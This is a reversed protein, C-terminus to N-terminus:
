FEFNIGAFWTLDGVPLKKDSGFGDVRAYTLEGYFGAHEIGMENRLSLAAQRDLREARIALGITVQFGLSAGLARDGDCSAAADGPDPCSMTPVEALGGSPQTIWWLYYSLGAKGYPVVPIRMYDDLATFRYVVGLTAPILRFSTDEAARIAKGDDDTAPKVGDICGPENNGCPVTTFTQGTKGMFGASATLGLQGFPWLFYRDLEFDLRFGAGGFTRKWPGDESSMISQDVDPLYPGGKIGFNWRSLGTDPQDPVPEFEELYPDYADQAHVSGGALWLVALAAMTAGVLRWRRPLSLHRDPGANRRGTQGASRRRRRYALWGIVGLLFLLKTEPGTYEWAAALLALPAIIVAFGARALRSQEAYVGLGAIHQYYFEILARGVASSALTHDRFDRMAQTFWHDDGFTSNILCIGGEASGGNRKYEEWFDIVAQPTAAGLDVAQFNGVDDISLLVFEYTVGNQLGGIRIKDATGSTSGCIFAPDFDALAAPLSTGPGADPQGDSGADMGGDMGGDTGGDMGGDAAASFDRHSASAALTSTGDRIGCLLFPSEYEPESKPQAFVPTDKGQEVCLVQYYKIDSVQSEPNTWQIVAAGEGPEVKANLPLPPPEADINVVLTQFYQEDPLSNNDDDFTLWASATGTTSKCMGDVFMFQHLDIDFVDGRAAVIDGITQIARCNQKLVDLDQSKCDTGVSLKADMRTSDPALLYNGEIKIKIISYDTNGSFPADEASCTCRAANFHRELLTKDLQTQFGGQEDPLQIDLEIDGTVSAQADDGAALGLVLILCARAIVRAARSFRSNGPSLSSEGPHDITPRAQHHM